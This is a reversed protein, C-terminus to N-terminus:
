HSWRSCVRLKIGPPVLPGGTLISDAGRMSGTRAKLTAAQAAAMTLQGQEDRSSTTRSNAVHAQRNDQLESLLEDVLGEWEEQLARRARDRIASTLRNSNGNPVETENVVIPRLLLQSVASCLRHAIEAEHTDQLAGATRAAEAIRVRLVAGVQQKTRRPIWLVPPKPFADPLDRLKRLLSPIEQPGEDADEVAAPETTDPGEITDYCEVCFKM